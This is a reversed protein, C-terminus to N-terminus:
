RLLAIRNLLEPVGSPLETVFDPSVIVVAKFRSAEREPAQEIPQWNTGFVGGAGEEAWYWSVTPRLEALDHYPNWIWRVEYGGSDSPRALAMFYRGPNQRAAAIQEERWYIRGKRVQKVEVLFQAGSKSIVIDVISSGVRTNRTVTWGDTELHSKLEAFLWEEAEIAEKHDRQTRPTPPQPSEGVRRPPDPQSPPSDQIPRDTRAQSPPPASPPVDPAPPKEVIVAPHIEAVARQADMISEHAVGLNTLKEELREEPYTLIDRLDGLGETPARDAALLIVQALREWAPDNADPNATTRLYLRWNEGDRYAFSPQDLTRLPQGGLKLTWTITLKTSGLIQIGRLASGLKDRGQDNRGKGLYAVLYPLRQEIRESLGNMPWEGRTTPVGEIRKSLRTMGFLSEAKAEMGNLRAPFIRIGALRLSDYEPRDLYTGSAAAATALTWSEAEPQPPCERWWVECGSLPHQAEEIRANELLCRYLERITERHQPQLQPNLRAAESLWRRWDDLTVDRWETRLALAAAIGTPFADDLRAIWSLMARTSAVEGPRFIDAPRYPRKEEGIPVWCLNKMQWALYSDATMPVNDDRQIQRSSWCCTSELYRSYYSWERAIVEFAGPQTIVRSGGDLTWDTKLLPNRAVFNQSQYRRLWSEGCYRRWEDPELKGGGFRGNQWRWGPPVGAESAPPVLPVVKPAWGVGLWRYFATWQERQEPDSPAQLFPRTDGYCRELFESNTWDSGAYTALATHLEGNRCAVKCTRILKERWPIGWAFHGRDREKASSWLAFLFEITGSPQDGTELKRLVAHEIVESLSFDRVALTDRIFSRAVDNGLSEILATYFERDLFRVEIGAPPPPPPSTGEPPVFIPAPSSVFPATEGAVKAWPLSRLDVKTLQAKPNIWLLTKEREANESEAQMLGLGDLGPRHRALCLKFREWLHLRKEGEWFAYPLHERQPCCRLISLPVGDPPGPNRAQIAARVAGILKAEVSSPSKGDASIHHLVDLMEAASARASVAAVVAAGVDAFCPAAHEHQLDVHKRDQGLPFAAHILINTFPNADETPFFCRLNTAIRNGSVLLRGSEDLPIAVAADGAKHIRWTQPPMEKGGIHQTIIVSGGEEAETRGWRVPAGNASDWVLETVGGIFVLLSPDCVLQEWERQVDARTSESLPLRVVTTYDDFRPLPGDCWEPFALIPLHEDDVGLTGRAFDRSWRVHLNRSHIEPSDTLKLISRFGLGKYGIPSDRNADVANQLLEVLARGAYAQSTQVEQSLEKHRQFRDGLIETLKQCLHEVSSQAHQASTFESPTEAWLVEDGRKTSTWGYVVSILGRPTFPNGTNAVFLAEPTLRFLIRSGSASM